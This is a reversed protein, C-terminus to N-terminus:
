PSKGGQICRSIQPKFNKFTHNQFCLSDYEIMSKGGSRAGHHLSFIILSIKSHAFKRKKKQGPLTCASTTRYLGDYLFPGIIM